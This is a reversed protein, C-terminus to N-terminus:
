TAQHVALPASDLSPIRAPGNEIIDLLWNKIQDAAVSSRRQDPKTTLSDRVALVGNRIHYATGPEVKQLRLGADVFRLRNGGIDITGDELDSLDPTSVTISLSSGIEQVFICKRDHGCVSQRLREAARSRLEPDQIDVAVQPVMALLPRFQDRPVGAFQMLAALNEVVLEVGKHDVRKIAAQGMSTAFVIVLEPNLKAWALAHGIIEDTFKMAFEMLEQNRSDCIGSANSFDEPFIDAWYRHMIGAVHNTFFTSLAPPNMPNFLRRFIDWFIISQFIPRKRANSPAMREAVLQSILRGVTRVSIGHRILALGAAAIQGHPPLGANVVRANRKVMALNFAQVPALSAPVCMEDHAFTDPVYFGGPGPDRPPWSQMSGFVGVTHGAARLDDWVATGRFTSPDQGLNRVEHLDNAMGRHLSPWTVWPSLEGSDVAVTTFQHSEQFFRHLNPFRVPEAYRDIVRWPVENIELLLIPTM